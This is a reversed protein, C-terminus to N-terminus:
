SSRTLRSKPLKPSNLAAPPAVDTWTKDCYPCQLTVVGFGPQTETQILKGIGDCAPCRYPAM